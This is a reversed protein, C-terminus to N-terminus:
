GLFWAAIGMLAFALAITVLRPMALGAVSRMAASLAAAARAPRGCEVLHSALVALERPSTDPSTWGSSTTFLPRKDAYHTM